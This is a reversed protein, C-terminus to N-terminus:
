LRGSERREIRFQGDSVGAGAEGHVRQRRGLGALDVTAATWTAGTAAGSGLSVTACCLARAAAIRAAFRGANIRAVEVQFDALVKRVLVGESLQPREFTIQQCFALERPRRLLWLPRDFSAARRVPGSIM